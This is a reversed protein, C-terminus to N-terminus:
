RPPDAEPAENESIGLHVPLLILGIERGCERLERLALRKGISKRLFSPRTMGLQAGFKSGGSSSGLAPFARWDRRAPRGQAKRRRASRRRAGRGRGGRRARRRRRM